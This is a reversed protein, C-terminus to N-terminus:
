LYGLELMENKFSNEISNRINSDLLKRWDNKPGLYFFVKKKNTKYDIPAENFSDNQELKKFIEFETNKIVKNLKIINLKFNGPSLNNLFKFIKILTTKKKQTLDEYKIVLLKKNFQKWSNYNVNWSSVFTKHMLQTKNLYNKDDMMKNAAEAISVSFHNAFSTVVNRPDRVIYISALSNKFDTFNVNNIKHLCSHTKLFKIEKNNFNIKKQAEIYYKSFDFDNNQDISFDDFHKISPFQEIFNLSSFKFTNATSYFYNSLISRLLTNGSKPYSALWIIM